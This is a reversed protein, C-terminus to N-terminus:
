LHLRPLVQEGLLRIGHLPDIGHPTGFEVRTAGAARLEETQRVIDEPAGAFAFRDLMEDSIDRGIAAYDLKAANGRVRALWEPDDITPDLGAVVGLYLSVERRALARAAQRDRDVVTVAGICIGARHTGLWRRMIPVLRPNASGGIKVEDATQGAMQATLRGWTGVVIPVSGRLPQYQLM